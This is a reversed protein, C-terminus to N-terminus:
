KDYLPVNWYKKKETDYYYPINKITKELGELLTIKPKFHM